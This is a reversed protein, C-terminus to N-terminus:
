QSKAHPRGAAAQLRAAFAQADDHELLRDWPPKGLSSEVLSMDFGSAVAAAWAPGQRSPARGSETRKAKAVKANM